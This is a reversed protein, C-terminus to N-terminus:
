WVQVLRDAIESKEVIDRVRAQINNQVNDVKREM